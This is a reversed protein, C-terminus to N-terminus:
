SGFVPIPPPDADLEAASFVGDTYDYCDGGVPNCGSCAKLVDINTCTLLIWSGDDPIRYYTGHMYEGVRTGSSNAADSSVHGVLKVNALDNNGNPNILRKRAQFQISIRDGAVYDIYGLNSGGHWVPHTSSLFENVPTTLGGTIASSAYNTVDPYGNIDYGRRDFWNWWWFDAPTSGTQLLQWSDSGRKRYIRMYCVDLTTNPAPTYDYAQGGKDEPNFEFWFNVKAPSGTWGDESTYGGCWKFTSDGGNFGTGYDTLTIPLYENLSTQQTSFITSAPSPTPAPTPTPTPTPAPAPTGTAIFRIENVRASESTTMDAASLVYTAGAVSVATITETSLGSLGIEAYDIQIDRSGNTLGTFTLVDASRTANATTDSPYDSPYLASSSMGDFVQAAWAIVDIASGSPSAITFNFYTTGLASYVYKTWSTTVSVTIWENTAMDRVVVDQAVGTNSKIWLIASQYGTLSSAQKFIGNNGAAAEIRVAKTGGRPDTQGSTVTAGAGIDSWGSVGPQEGLQLKNTMAPEFLLGLFTGSYVGYDFRAVDTSADAVTRAASIRTGISARTLTAGAPMTAGTFDFTDGAPAPTPTPTPTPAPTPVQGILAYLANVQARLLEHETNHKSSM